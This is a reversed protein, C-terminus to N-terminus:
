FILSEITYTFLECKVGNLEVIITQQEQDRIKEMILDASTPEYLDYIAGSGSMVKSVKEEM